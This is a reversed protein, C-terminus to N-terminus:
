SGLTISEIYVVTEPDSGIQCDRCAQSVFVVRRRNIGEIPRIEVVRSSSGQPLNTCITDRSTAIFAVFIVKRRSNAHCPSESAFAVCNQSSTIPHIVVLRRQRRTLSEIEVGREEVEIQEERKRAQRQRQGIWEWAVERKR